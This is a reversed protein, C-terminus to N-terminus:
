ILMGLLRLTTNAEFSLDRLCFVTFSPVDSRLTIRLESTLVREGNEMTNSTLTAVTSPHESFSRNRGPTDSEPFSLVNSSFSSIYDVSRWSITSARRTVCTLTIEEGPCLRQGNAVPSIQQCSCPLITAAFLSTM